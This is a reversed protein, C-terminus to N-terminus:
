LDNSTKLEKANLVNKAINKEPSTLEYEIKLKREYITSQDCSSLLGFLCFCLSIYPFLRTL